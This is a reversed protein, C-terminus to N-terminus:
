DDFRPDGAIAWEIDARADDFVSGGYTHGAGKLTHLRVDTMGAAALRRMARGAAIPCDDSGCLFVIREGGHTAFARAREPTWAEHGGEVLIVRPFKKPAAAVTPVGYIAGLSFGTYTISGPDVYDPYAARLAVIADDVEAAMAEAHTYTLRPDDSTAQKSPIGRPCLVFARGHFIAGWAGCQWDPRDWLGHLAVVIPRPRTTGLPLVVVADGHGPVPLSLSASSAALPALGSSTASTGSEIADSADQAAIIPIPAAADVIPAVIENRENRENQENRENRPPDRHCGGLWSALAVIAIRTRM